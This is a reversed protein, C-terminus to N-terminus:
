SRVPKRDKLDQLKANRADVYERRLRESLYRRMLDIRTVNAREALQDLCALESVSLTLMPTGNVAGPIEAGVHRKLISIAAESKSVNLARAQAEVAASLDDELRLSLVQTM